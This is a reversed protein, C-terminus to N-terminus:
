ISLKSEATEFAISSDTTVFFVDINIAHALNNILALFVTLYEVILSYSVTTSQTIGSTSFMKSNEPDNLHFRDRLFLISLNPSTVICFATEM